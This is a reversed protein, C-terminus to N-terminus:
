SVTTRAHSAPRSTTRGELCCSAAHSHRYTLFRRHRMGFLQGHVDQIPHQKLHTLMFLRKDEITPLPCTGSTSSRRSTRPQGDITRDHMYADFAHEVHPLSAQFGAATLGTFSRLSGARQTVDEASPM